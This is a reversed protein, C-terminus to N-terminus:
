PAFTMVSALLGLQIYLRCWVCGALTVGQSTPSQKCILLFTAVACIVVAVLATRLSSELPHPPSCSQPGQMSDGQGPPLAPGVQASSIRATRRPAPCCPCRSRSPLQIYLVNWTWSSGRRSKESDQLEPDECGIPFKLQPTGGAWGHPRRCLGLSM